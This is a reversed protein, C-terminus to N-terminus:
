GRNRLLERTEDDLVLMPRRLPLTTRGTFRSSMEAYHAWWPQAQDLAERRTRGHGVVRARLIQPDNAERREVDVLYVHQSPYRECIESWTLMESITPALERAAHM